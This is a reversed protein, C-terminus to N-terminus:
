AHTATISQQVQTHKTTNKTYVWTDICAARITVGESCQGIHKSLTCDHIQRSKYVNVNSLCEVATNM